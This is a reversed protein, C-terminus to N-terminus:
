FLCTLILKNYINNLILSNSFYFIFNIRLFSLIIDYFFNLIYLLFFFILFFIKKKKKNNENERM